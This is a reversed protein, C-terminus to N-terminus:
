EIFIVEKVFDIDMVALELGQRVKAAGNFKMEVKGTEGDVSIIDVSGGMAIIAPNIRNVEAAVMEFSLGKPKGDGEETVQLVQGLNAFKEKLVREIGMQM